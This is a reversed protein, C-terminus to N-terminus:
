KKGVMGKFMDRLGPPEVDEDTDEKENDFSLMFDSAVFSDGGQKTVGALLAIDATQKAVRIDGREEGWPAIRYYCQYLLIEASSWKRLEHFPIGM